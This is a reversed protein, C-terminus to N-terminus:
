TELELDDDDDVDYDAVDDVAMLDSIEEDSGEPYEPEQTDRAILRGSSELWDLM